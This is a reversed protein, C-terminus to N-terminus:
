KSWLFDKVQDMDSDGQGDEFPSERELDRFGGHMVSIGVNFTM